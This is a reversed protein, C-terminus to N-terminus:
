FLSKVQRYSYSGSEFGNQFLANPITKSKINYMQYNCDSEYVMVVSGVSTHICHTGWRGRNKFTYALAWM